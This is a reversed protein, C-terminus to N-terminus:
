DPISPTGVAEPQAEDAPIIPSSAKHLLAERTERYRESLAFMDTRIDCSPDVEDSDEPDYMLPATMEPSVGQLLARSIVDHLPEGVYTIPDLIGYTEEDYIVTALPRLPTIDIHKM